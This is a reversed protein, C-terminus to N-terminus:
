LGLQRKLQADTITKRNNYNRCDDNEPNNDRRIDPGYVLHASFNSAFEGPNPNWNKFFYARINYQTGPNMSVESRGPWNLATLERNGRKIILKQQSLRSKYRGIGVNKLSVIIRLNRTGPKTGPSHNVASIRVIAPDPCSSHLRPTNLGTKGIRRPNLKVGRPLVNPAIVTVQPFRGYSTYGPHHHGSEIRLLQLLYRGYLANPVKAEIYGNRWQRIEFSYARGKTGTKILRLLHRSSRSGFNSGYIRLISGKRLRTASLRSIRVNITHAQASNMWTFSDINRTPVIQPATFLAPVIALAALTKIQM